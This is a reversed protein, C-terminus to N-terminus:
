QEVFGPQTCRPGFGAGCYCAHDVAPGSVSLSLPVAASSVMNPRAPSSVKSAPRAIVHQVAARAGVRDAIGPRIDPRHLHVQKRARNTATVASVQDLGHLHHRVLDATLHLRESNNKFRHRGAALRRRRLKARISM